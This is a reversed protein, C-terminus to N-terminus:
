KFAGLVRNKCRRPAPVLGGTVEIVEGFQSLDWDGAVRWRGRRM